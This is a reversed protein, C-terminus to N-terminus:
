FFCLPVFCISVYDGNIKGVEVCSPSALKGKRCQHKWKLPRVMYYINDMQPSANRKNKHNYRFEIMFTYMSEISGVLAHTLNAVNVLM